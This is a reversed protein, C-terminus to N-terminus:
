PEEDPDGDGNYYNGYEDKWGGYQDFKYIYNSGKIKFGLGDSTEAYFEFREPHPQHSM